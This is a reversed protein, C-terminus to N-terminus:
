NLKRRSRPEEAFNRRQLTTAIEVHHRTHWLTDYYMADIDSVKGVSYLVGNGERGKARRLWISTIREALDRLTEVNACEGFAREAAIPNTDFFLERDLFRSRTVEKKEGGRYLIMEPFPITFIRGVTALM